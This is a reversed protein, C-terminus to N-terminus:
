IVLFLIAHEIGLLASEIRPKEYPQQSYEFNGINDSIKDAMLYQRPKQTTSVIIIPLSHQSEHSWSIQQIYM